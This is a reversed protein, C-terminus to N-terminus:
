QKTMHHIKRSPGTKHTIFHGLESFYNKNIIKILFIDLHNKM